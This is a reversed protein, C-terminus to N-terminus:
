RAECSIGDNDADLHRWYGPQSIRAPALGVGRATECNTSAVWHRLTVLAGWPTGYQLSVLLALVSALISLAVARGLEGKLEAERDPHIARRSNARAMAKDRPRESYIPTLSM